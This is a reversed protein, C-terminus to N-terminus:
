GRVHFFNLLWQIVALLAAQNQNDPNKEAAELISLLSSLPASLDSATSAPQNNTSAATILTTAVKSNTQSTSSTSSVDTTSTSASSSPSPLQSPMSTPQTATWTTLITAADLGSTFSPSASPSSSTSHTSTSTSATSATPSSSSTSASTVESPTESAASGGYTIIASTSFLQTLASVSSITRTLAGSTSVSSTQTIAVDVPMESSSFAMAVESSSSSVQSVPALLSSATSPTSESTAVLSGSPSAANKASQSSGQYFYTSSPRSSPKITPTVFPKSTDNSFLVPPNSTTPLSPIGSARASASVSTSNSTSNFNALFTSNSTSNSSSTLNKPNPQINDAKIIDAAKEAVGYVTAQLHAAPILPFIGADVVRLNQTGWVRLHPDVVGGQELPLMALTGSPHFETRVGNKITALIDSDNAERTPVFEAPQLERMSPTDLINRNFRIAEVFVQLDVPNSGYRPDVLPPEFPDTSTIRCVGRSFPHMVAITLSGANNNIIEYAAIYRLSLRQVLSKKQAAYGAVLTPDVDALYQQPPQASASGLISSSNDSISPLSLFALANPSGATWPGTRTSYYEQRAEANFTANNTLDFPYHYSKNNYPYFTGVLAHDQLNNGVGPLDLAVPINLSDLLSRPGIGSLQLLQVSHLAGAAVIVERTALVTQRPASADPAFQSFTLKSAGLSEQGLSPIIVEVGTIHLGGLNDRAAFRTRSTPPPTTSGNGFVGGSVAGSSGGEGNENGGAMPQSVGANSAVDEILIRTVHHGTMVHFNSRTTYPDYYGRRADSRTQNDPDLDTPVFMAGASVGDNPDFATPVGLQNLGTFLNVSQNYFYKPYSVHIPGSTGHVSPEYNISYQEAIALSYVPTYNESKIFYPLLGQWGWGPNGLAEWADYDDAGGRNWCMANLISGGGVVKGQPMPRKAGDLFTQPVTQLNWDYPGGIDGGVFVPVQIVEEYNDLNGAEICLVSVNRNESLRNAVVLGSIGCGVVVYDYAPLLASTGNKFSACLVYSSLILHVSIGYFLGKM